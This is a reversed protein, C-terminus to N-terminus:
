KTASPEDSSAPSPAHPTPAPGLAEQVILAIEALSDGAVVRVDAIGGDTVLLRAVVRDGAGCELWIVPSTDAANRTRERVVEIQQQRTLDSFDGRGPDVTLIQFGDLALELEARLRSEADTPRPGGCATLLSLRAPVEGATARDPLAGLALLAALWPLLPRSVSFSLM